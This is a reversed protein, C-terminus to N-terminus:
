EGLDLPALMPERIAEPLELGGLPVFRARISASLSGPTSSKSTAVGLGLGGAKMAEVAIQDVPRHQELARKQLAADLELPIDRLTLTM